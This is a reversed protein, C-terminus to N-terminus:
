TRSRAPTIGHLRRKKERLEDQECEDPKEDNQVEGPRLARHRNWDRWDLGLRELGRAVAGGLGCRKLPQRVLGMTDPTLSRGRRGLRGRRYRGGWHGRRVSAGTGHVGRHVTTGGTITVITAPQPQVMQPGVAM